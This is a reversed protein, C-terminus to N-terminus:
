LLKVKAAQVMIPLINIELYGRFQEKAGDNSLEHLLDGLYFLSFFSFIWNRFHTVTRHNENYAYQMTHWEVGGGRGILKELIYRIVDLVHQFVNAKM